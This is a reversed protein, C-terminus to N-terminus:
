PLVISNISLLKQGLNQMEQLIQNIMLPLTPLPIPSLFTDQLGLSLQSIVSYLSTINTTAHSNEEDFIGGYDTDQLPM